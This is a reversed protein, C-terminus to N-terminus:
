QLLAALGTISAPDAPAFVFHGCIDHLVELPM